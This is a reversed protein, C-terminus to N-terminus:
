KDKKDDAASPQQAGPGSTGGSPTKPPDDTNVGAGEASARKAPDSGDPIPANVDFTDYRDVENISLHLQNPYSNVEGVFGKVPGEEITATKVEKELKAM